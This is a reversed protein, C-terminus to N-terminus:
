RAAPTARGFGPKWLLWGSLILQAAGLPALLFFVVWGGFLPKTVAIMQCMAALVGFGALWRPVLRFRYFAAYMALIVGGASLLQFLHSWNRQSRVVIRLGEYLTGDLAGAEVYAQSLSLMSLLAANEAGALAIAAAGLVALALAMRESLPRVVPWLVVAIAALLVALAISLLAALGIATAHPAANVLFGGQGQFAPELLRFNAIPGIVMQAILLAALWRSASKLDDM